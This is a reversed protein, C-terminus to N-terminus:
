IVRIFDVKMCGPHYFKKNCSIHDEVIKHKCVWCIEQREKHCKACSPAEDRVFFIQGLKVSCFKCRSLIYKGRSWFECQLKNKTKGSAAKITCSESQLSAM